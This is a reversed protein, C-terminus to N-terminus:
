KDNSRVSEIQKDIFSSIDGKAEEVKGKATNTFGTVAQVAGTKADGEWVTASLKSLHASFLDSIVGFHASITSKLSELEGLDVSVEEGAAPVAPPTISAGNFEISVANGGLSGSINSTSARVAQSISQMDKILNSAFDAALQGCKTKFDVANPGFYNVNVADNVMSDLKGRITGFIETASGGYARISAPDLKVYGAM